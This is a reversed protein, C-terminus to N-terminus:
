SPPTPVLAGVRYRVEHWTGRTAASTGVTQSRASLVNARVALGADMLAALAENEVRAVYGLKAGDAALVEIARADHPNSPERRLTLPDGAALRPVAKAADYYPLGAVAADALLTVPVAAGAARAPHLGASPVLRALAAARALRLLARRTTRM